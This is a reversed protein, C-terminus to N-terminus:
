VSTFFSKTSGDVELTHSLAKKVISSLQILSESAQQLSKNRLAKQEYYSSPGAGKFTEELRADQKVSENKVEELMAGLQAIVGAMETVTPTSWTIQDSAM